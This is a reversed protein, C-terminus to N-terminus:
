PTPPAAAVTVTGTTDITVLSRPTLTALSASLPAACARIAELRNNPVILIIVMLPLAALNQQFRLNQDVTVFADFGGTAAQALLQGNKLGSWGLQYATRVDHGVLLGGFRRPVCHDLLIRM